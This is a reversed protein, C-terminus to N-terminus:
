SKLSVLDVLDVDGPLSGINSPRTGLPSCKDGDGVANCGDRMPERWVEEYTYELNTNSM